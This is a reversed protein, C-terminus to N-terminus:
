LLDQIEQIEKDAERELRMADLAIQELRPEFTHKIWWYQTRNIVNTHLGIHKRVDFITVTTEPIMIKYRAFWAHYNAKTIKGIDTIMCGFIITETVNWGEDSKDRDVIKSLDYDLSM